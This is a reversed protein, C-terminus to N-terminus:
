ASDFGKKHLRLRRNCKIEILVGCSAYHIGRWWRGRIHKLVKPEFWNSGVKNRRLELGDIFWKSGNWGKNRESEYLVRPNPSEQCTYFTDIRGQLMLKAPMKEIDFVNASRKRSLVLLTRADEIVAPAFVTIANPDREM